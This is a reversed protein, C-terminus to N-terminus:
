WGEIASGTLQGGSGSWQGSLLPWFPTPALPRPSLYPQTATSMRLSQLRQSYASRLHGNHGVFLRKPTSLTDEDVLTPEFYMSLLEGYLVFSRNSYRSSPGGALLVNDEPNLRLPGLPNDAIAYITERTVNTDSLPGGIGCSNGM